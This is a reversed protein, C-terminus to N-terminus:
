SSSTATRRSDRWAAILYLIGPIAFLWFAGGALRHNTALEVANLLGYGLLATVGGVLPRRWGIAYGVFIIALSAFELQVRPPQQALPPIGDALAFLMFFGFMGIAAIRAIWHPLAPRDPSSSLVANMAQDETNMAIARVKM